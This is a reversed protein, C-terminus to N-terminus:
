EGLFIIPHCISFIFFIKFFDQSLKRIFSKVKAYIKQALISSVTVVKKKLAVNSAHPLEWALFQILTAAAAVAVAVGSVLWM